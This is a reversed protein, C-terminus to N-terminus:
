NTGPDKFTKLTSEFRFHRGFLSFYYAELSEINEEMQEITNEVYRASDDSIGDDMLLNTAVIMLQEHYRIMSEINTRIQTRTIRAVTNSQNALDQQESRLKAAQKIQVMVEGRAANLAKEYVEKAKKEFEKKAGRYKVDRYVSWLMLVIGIIM